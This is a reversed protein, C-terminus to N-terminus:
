EVNLLEVDFVLTSNAPIAGPIEREGYGLESPITLRRKGGVKMGEVGQDWGKIVEGGGLAFSFPQNRDLSSDFKKGNPKSLWGTYHVTVRKGSTAVTGEGVKLDKKILKAEKKKAEKKEPAAKKKGAKKEKKPADGAKLESKTAAPATADAPAPAETAEDAGYSPPVLAMGAVMSLVLGFKTFVSNM